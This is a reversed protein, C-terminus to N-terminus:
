VQGKSILIKGLVEQLKKYLTTSNSRPNKKALKNDVNEKLDKFLDIENPELNYITDLYGVYLLNVFDQKHANSM